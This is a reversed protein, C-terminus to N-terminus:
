TAFILLVMEGDTLPTTQTLDIGTSVEKPVIKKKRIKFRGEKWKRVMKEEPNEEKGYQYIFYFFLCFAFM